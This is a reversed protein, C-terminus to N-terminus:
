LSAVNRYREVILIVLTTSPTDIVAFPIERLDIM